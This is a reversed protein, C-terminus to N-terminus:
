DEDPEASARALNHQTSRGVAPWCAIRNISLLGWADRLAEEVPVPSVVGGAGDIARDGVVFLGCPCRM